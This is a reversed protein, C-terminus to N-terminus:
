LIHFMANLLLWNPRFSYMLPWYSIGQINYDALLQLKAYMSRVDEFWVIHPVGRLSYEFFPAQAVTDYLIPSRHRMALSAAEDNGIVTAATRGQSYPLPWDYAYNPFRMVIKERPVETVIQELVATIQNFPVVPMPPGEASEWDLSMFIMFDVCTSLGAYDITSLFTDQEIPFTQFPLTISITYGQEHMCTQLNRIFDTFLDRDSTLIYRFDLNIGRYKRQEMIIQIHEIVRNRMERNNLLQSILGSNSHSSRLSPTLVLIPNTNFDGALAILPEDAPSLLDGTATFRYSYISLSTLCPLTELLLEKRIDPYAYSNIHISDTKTDEYQIVLEEGAYLVPDVALYPNNRLIEMVATDHAAAIDTLTEGSQVRHLLVPILILIAQGAVLQSSEELRNHYALRQASVNYLSAISAITDGEKVIYIM